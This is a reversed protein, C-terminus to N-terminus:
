KGPPTTNLKDQQEQFFKGIEIIMNELTITRKERAVLWNGVAVQDATDVNIPPVPPPLTLLKAPPIKIVYETKVITNTVPTVPKVMQQCGVLTILAALLIIKKM